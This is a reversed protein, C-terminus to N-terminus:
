RRFERLETQHRHEPFKEDMKDMLDSAQQWDETDDSAMLKAVRQYMSEASQPWFAYAILGVTVLFLPILVWPRNFFQNLPGGRNQRELEQRMLRSMLTA